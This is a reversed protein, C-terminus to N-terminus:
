ESLQEGNIFKKGESYIYCVKKRKSIERFEELSKKLKNFCMEPEDAENWEKSLLKSVPPLYFYREKFYFRSDNDIFMLYFFGSTYDEIFCSFFFDKDKLKCFKLFNGEKLYYKAKKESGKLFIANGKDVANEPIKFPIKGLFIKFFIAEFCSLEPTNNPEPNM